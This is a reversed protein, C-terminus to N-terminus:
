FRDGRELLRMRLFVVDETRGDRLMFYDEFTCQADFGLSELARVFKPQSAPVEAELWYLGEKRALEIIANLLETGLGRGRYDKSLFIRVEATHQYPSSQRHLTANGIIRQDVLALVPLVKKYDLEDVWTNVLEPNTVDHRLTRLDDPQASAYLEVLGKRDAITLPRILLRANDKLTMLHRYTEITSTPM